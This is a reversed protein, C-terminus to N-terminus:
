WGAIFYGIFQRFTVDDWTPPRGLRIPVFFVEINIRHGGSGLRYSCNESPSVTWRTGVIDNTRTSERGGLPCSEGDSDRIYALGVGSSSVVLVPARIMLTEGVHLTSGSPPEFVLDEMFVTDRYSDPRPPLTPSFSSGKCSASTVIVLAIVGSLSALKKTM